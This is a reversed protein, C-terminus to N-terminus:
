GGGSGIDERWYSEIASHGNITAGAPPVSHADEAYLAALGGADGANFAKVWEATAEDAAAKNESPAGRGCATLSGAVAVAAVGRTIRNSFVRTMHREEVVASPRMCSENRRAVTQLFNARM